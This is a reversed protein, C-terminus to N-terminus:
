GTRDSRLNVGNDPATVRARELVDFRNRRHNAVEKLAVLALPCVCLVWCRARGKLGLSLHVGNQSRTRRRRNAVRRYPAGQTLSPRYHAALDEGEAKRVLLRIHRCPPFV